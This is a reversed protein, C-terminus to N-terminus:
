CPGLGLGRPAGPDRAGPGYGSGSAPARAGPGPGGSKGTRLNEPVTNDRAKQPRRQFITAFNHTTELDLSYSLSPSRDYNDLNDYNGRRLPSPRSPPTTASPRPWPRAAMDLLSAASPAAQQNAMWILMFAMLKM